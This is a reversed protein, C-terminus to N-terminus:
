IVTKTESPLLSNSRVFSISRGQLLGTDRCFLSLEPGDLAKNVLALWAVTLSYCLKIKERSNISVFGAIQNTRLATRIKRDVM